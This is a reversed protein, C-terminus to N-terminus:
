APFEASFTATVDFGPALRFGPAFSDVVHGLRDREPPHDHAYQAAVPDFAAFDLASLRDLEAPPIRILLDSRFVASEPIDTTEGETLLYAMGTKVSTYKVTIDGTPSLDLEFSRDYRRADGGM